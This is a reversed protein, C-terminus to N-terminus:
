PQGYAEPHRPLAFESGALMRHAQILQVGVIVRGEVSLGVERSAARLLRRFRWSGLRPAARGKAWRRFDEELEAFSVRAAPQPEARDTLWKGIWEPVTIAEEATAGPHGGVIVLLGFCCVSEVVLALLISLGTRVRDQGVGFLVAFGFSQPDAIQGAGQKRLREISFNLKEIKETLVAVTAANALEGKLLDIGQCFDRSSLATANTCGQTLDWRRDKKAADIKAAVRAAPQLEGLAKRDEAARDRDHVADELQANLNERSGTLQSRNQMGFGVSGAIAYAVLILFV